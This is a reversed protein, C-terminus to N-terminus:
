LGAALQSAMAAPDVKGGPAMKELNKASRM